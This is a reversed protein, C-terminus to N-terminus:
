RQEQGGRDAPIPARSGLRETHLKRSSPVSASARSELLGARQGGHLLDIGPVSRPVVRGRHFRMSSDPRIPVDIPLFGGPVRVYIEAGVVQHELNRRSM